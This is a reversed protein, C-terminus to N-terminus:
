LLAGQLLAGELESCWGQSWRLTGSVLPFALRHVPGPALLSGISSKLVLNRHSSCLGLLTVLPVISGDWQALVRSLREFGLHDGCSTVQLFVRSRM